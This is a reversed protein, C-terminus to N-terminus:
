GHVVQFPSIPKISRARVITAVRFEAEESSQIQSHSTRGASLCRNEGLREIYERPQEAGGVIERTRVTEAQRLSKQGGNLTRAPDLLRNQPM